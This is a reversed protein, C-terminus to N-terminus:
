KGCSNYHPLVKISDIKSLPIVTMSLDASPVDIMSYFLFIKDKHQFLMRYCGQDLPPRMQSLEQEKDDSIHVEVRPYSPYDKHKQGLFHADGAKEGLYFCLRFCALFAAACLCITLVASLKKIRPPKKDKKGIYKSLNTASLVISLVIIFLVLILIPLWFSRFAMFGYVFYYEKPLELTLLGIHFREFYRYAFSWGACYLLSAVLALLFAVDLIKSLDLRGNNKEVSNKNM